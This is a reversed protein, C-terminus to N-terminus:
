YSLKWLQLFHIVPISFPSKSKHLHIPSLIILSIIFLLFHLSFDIYGYCSPSLSAHLTVSHHVEDNRLQYPRTNHTICIPPPMRYLLFSHSGPHIHVRTSMTHTIRHLSLITHAYVCVHVHLHLRNRPM